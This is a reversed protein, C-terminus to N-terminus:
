LLLHSKAHNRVNSKFKHYKKVSSCVFFLYMKFIKTSPINFTGCNLSLNTNTGLLGIQVYAGDMFKVVTFKVALM